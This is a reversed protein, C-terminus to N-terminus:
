NVDYLFKALEMVYNVGVDNIWTDFNTRYCSIYIEETDLNSSTHNILFQSLATILSSLPSSGARKLEEWYDITTNFGAFVYIVKTTTSLQM